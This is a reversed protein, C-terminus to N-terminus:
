RPSTPISIGWCTACIGPGAPSCHFLFWLSFPSLPWGGKRIVQHFQLLDGWLRYNRTQPFWRALRKMAAQSEQVAQPGDFWADLDEPRRKEILSALLTELNISLFVRHAARYRTAYRLIENRYEPAVRQVYASLEFQIFGVFCAKGSQAQV